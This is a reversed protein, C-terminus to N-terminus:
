GARNSEMWHRCLSVVGLSRLAVATPFWSVNVTLPTFTAVCVSATCEAGTAHANEDTAVEVFDRDILEARPCRLSRAPRTCLVRDPPMLKRFQRSRPRSPERQRAGIASALVFAVARNATEIRNPHSEDPVWLGNLWSGLDLTDVISIGPGCALHCEAHGDSDTSYVLINQITSDQNSLHQDDRTM